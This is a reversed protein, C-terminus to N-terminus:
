SIDEKLPDDAEPVIGAEILQKRLKKITKKLESMRVERDAMANLLKQLYETRQEVLKELEEQTRKRDTIDRTVSLIATVNGQEDRLPTGHSEMWRTTGDPAKMKFEVTATNGKAVEEMFKQYRELHEEDVLNIVFRDRLKEVTNCGVMKLGAPNMDILRGDLSVIKVCEPESEFISRFWHESKRIREEARKKETIDRVFAIVFPTKQGDKDFLYFHRMRVEVPFEEGTKKRAMWEFEVAEGQLAKKLYGMATETDYASGMMESPHMRQFEKLSYGFTKEVNKNIDVIFGDSNYIFIMDPTADYIAKLYNRIQEIEQYQQRLQETRRTVITRLICSVALTIILLIGLLLALGTIWAPIVYKQPVGLWHDISQYYISNEDLKLKSLYNDIVKQLKQAKPSNRSFAFCVKVPSFIISTKEIQTYRESNIRGYLRNVVGADVEASNVANFIEHYNQKLVIKSSIQFSSLLNLFPEYFIDEELIAIKKNKLDPIEDIKSNRHRFIVAWNVIVSEKSYLFRKEREESYAIATLVDLKGEELQELCEKWICPKYQIEWNEKEAIYSIIDPFIGRPTDPDNYFVLPPNQYIGITVTQEAPLTSSSLTIWLLILLFILRRM